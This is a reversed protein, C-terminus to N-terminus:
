GTLVFSGVAALLSLVASLVVIAKEAPEGAHRVNYDLEPGFWIWKKSSGFRYHVLLAPIYGAAAIVSASCAAAPLRGGWFSSARGALSIPFLVLLLAVTVAGVLLRDAWPIWRKQWHLRREEKEWERCNRTERLRLDRAEGLQLERQIRFVFAVIGFGVLAAGIAALAGDDVMIVLIAASGPHVLSIPAQRNHAQWLAKAMPGQQGCKPRM